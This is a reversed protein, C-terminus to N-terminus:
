PISVKNAIISYAKGTLDKPVDALFSLTILGDDDLSTYLIRAELPGVILQRGLIPGQWYISCLPHPFKGTVRKVEDMFCSGPNLDAFNILADVRVRSASPGSIEIWASRGDWSELRCYEPRAWDDTDATAILARATLGHAMQKNNDELSVTLIAPWLRFNLGLATIPEGPGFGDVTLRDEDISRGIM